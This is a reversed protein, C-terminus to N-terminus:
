GPQLILCHKNMKANSTLQMFLMLGVSLMQSRTVVVANWFNYHNEWLHETISGYLRSYLSGKIVNVRHIYNGTLAMVTPKQGM